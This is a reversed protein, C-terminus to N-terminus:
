DKRETLVYFGMQLLWVSNATVMFLGALFSWWLGQSPYFYLNWWGWLAFFTIPVVSVGRVKKDLYLRRISLCIFLAGVFEFIGNAIDPTVQRGRM